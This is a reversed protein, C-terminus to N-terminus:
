YVTYQWYCVLQHEQIPADNKITIDFSIYRTGSAPIKLDWTSGGVTTFMRIQDGSFVNLCNYDPGAEGIAELKTFVSTDIVKLMVNEINDDGSNTVSRRIRGSWGQAVGFDQIQLIVSM